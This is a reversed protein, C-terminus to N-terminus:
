PGDPAITSEAANDTRTTDSTQQPAGNADGEPNQVPPGGRMQLLSTQLETIALLSMATPALALRNDWPAMRVGSLASVHDRVYFCSADKMMLQEIFRASYSVAIMWGLKDNDATLADDRLAIAILMLPQANRWDPNPPSGAPGPSLVFGGMVDDPGFEPKEIVQYQCLQDILHAIATRHRKLQQEHAQAQDDTVLLDGVQEQALMLWPLASISPVPQADSWVSDILQSVLQGVKPQRIREYWGALAAAALASAGSNLQSDDEADNNRRVLEQMLRQGIQDRLANDATGPPAELMTLLSLSLVRIDPDQQALANGALLTATDLAIGAHGLHAQARPRVDALYKAHHVIAYCALAAQEDAAIQPDYRGSTPHYTGRLQSDSTFRQVLHQVLRDSMSELQREELAYRPSDVGSRIIRMPKKEPAPRVLLITKFRALALGDPKALQGVYSRDIGIQKLGLMLQSAPAINRAIVEGPWIWARAGTAENIFALGHYGPAFQAFVADQGADNPIKIQQLDYALELDVIIRSHVDAVSLEVPDPISRGELLARMRADNLNEAVEAKAQETAQRILPVLDVSGAPQDLDLGMDQRYAEGHGVVIGQTRLTLKVGLLGTVRIPGTKVSQDPQEAILEEVLHYARLGHSVDLLPADIQSEQTQQATATTALLMLLVLGSLAHQVRVVSQRGVRTNKRNGFFLMWRKDSKIHVPNLIKM